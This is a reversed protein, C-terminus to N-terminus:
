LRCLSSSLPPSQPMLPPLSCSTHLPKPGVLKEKQILFYEEVMDRLYHHHFQDLPHHSYYPHYPSHRHYRTTTSTQCKLSRYKQLQKIM